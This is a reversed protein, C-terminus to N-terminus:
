EYGLRRNMSGAIKDFIDFDDPSLATKWREDLSIKNTSDLRMGNGVVHHEVSRFDSVPKSSDVEIFNFLYNLTKEPNRCLDEYRIVTFLSKDLGDLLADAEENSRLWEHSAEAMSLVKGTRKGGMGGARLNPSNADAFKAPDVYTLAVGRGDRVLRIIKIDIGPNKLLYKLRLGIKSSDVVVKKGTRGIVCRMLALNRTSIQSIAQRWSPSFGLAIDRLMELLPGRHLPRLLTLVFPSAETRIDTGPNTIDFAFGLDAMDRRIGNWFPCQKILSGCSCRYRDIDGLSTMKIEGVTCIEPHSGLLMALLTSGSHSAALLYVLRVKENSITSLVPGSLNM